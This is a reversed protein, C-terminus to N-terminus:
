VTKGNVSEPSRWFCKVSAKVTHSKRMKEEVKKLWKGPAGKTCLSYAFSLFLPFRFM